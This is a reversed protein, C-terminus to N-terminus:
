CTAIWAILFIVEMILVFAGVGYLSKLYSNNKRFCKKCVFIRDGNPNQMTAGGFWYGATEPVSKRCYNCQAYTDAM